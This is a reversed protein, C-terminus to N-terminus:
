KDYKGELYWNYANERSVLDEKSSYVNLNRNEGNNDKTFEYYIYNKPVCRGSNLGEKESMWMNYVLHVITDNTTSEHWPQNSLVASRYWEHDGERMMLKEFDKQFLWTFNSSTQEALTLTHYNYQNGESDVVISCDYENIIVWLLRIKQKNPNNGKVTKLPSYWLIKNWIVELDRPMDYEKIVFNTDQTITPQPTLSEDKIPSPTNKLEVTIVGTDDTPTCETIVAPTCETIVATTGEALSKKASNYSFQGLLFAFVALLVIIFARKM